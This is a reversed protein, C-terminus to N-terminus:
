WSFVTVNNKVIDFGVLSWSIFFTQHLHTNKFATHLRKSPVNEFRFDDPWLGEM